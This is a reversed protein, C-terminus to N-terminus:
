DALRPGLHTVSRDLLRKGAGYESDGPGYPEVDLPLTLGTGVVIMALHHLYGQVLGQEDKVPHCLPCPLKHTCGAGTGDIALGIFRSSEFAKNRKAQQLTSALAVRTVEPDLRETFYALADDGFPVPLEPLDAVWPDAWRM